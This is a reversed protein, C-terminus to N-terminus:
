PKLITVHDGASLASNFTVSFGLTYTYDEKQCISGNLFVAVQKYGYTTVPFATQGETATFEFLSHEEYNDAMIKHILDDPNSSTPYSVNDYDIAYKDKVNLYDPCSTRLVLKVKKGFVKKQIQVIGMPPIVVTTAGSQIFNTGHQTRYILISM